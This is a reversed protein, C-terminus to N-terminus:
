IQKGFNSSSKVLTTKESFNKVQKEPHQTEMKLVHFSPPVHIAGCLSVKM